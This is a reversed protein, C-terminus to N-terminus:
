PGSPGGGDSSSDSAGARARQREALSALRSRVRLAADLEAAGDHDDTTAGALKLKEVLIGRLERAVKVWVEPEGECGKAIRIAKRAFLELRDLDSVITKSLKTRATVRAETAREVGERKVLNAVTQHAVVVGHERKLWEAIARVGVSSRSKQLIAEHLEPPIKFAM